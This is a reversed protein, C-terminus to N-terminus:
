SGAQPGPNTAEAAEVTRALLSAFVLHQAAEIEGLEVLLSHARPNRIGTYAGQLLQIFGKQGNVGSATTLDAVKLLPKDLSFTRGVLEPGDNDLGTRKRILDFVAIVANLVADRHHGDQFHKLAAAAIVPHL